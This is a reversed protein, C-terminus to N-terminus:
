CPVAPGTPVRAGGALPEFRERRAFVVRWGAARLTPASHRLGGPLSAGVRSLTTSAGHGARFPHGLMMAASIPGIAM